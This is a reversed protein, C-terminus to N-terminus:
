RATPPVRIPMQMKQISEVACITVPMFTPRWTPTLLYPVVLMITLPQVRLLFPKGSNLQQTIKKKRKKRRVDARPRSVTPTYCRLRFRGDRPSDESLSLSVGSSEGSVSTSCLPGPSRPSSTNWCEATWSCGASIAVSSSCLCRSILAM